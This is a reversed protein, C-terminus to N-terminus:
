MCVLCVTSNFCFSCGLPCATCVSAQGTSFSSSNCKRCVGSLMHYNPLCKLCVSSNLAPCICGSPCGGLNIDYVDYGDIIRFKKHFELLGLFGTPASKDFSLRMVKNAQTSNLQRSDVQVLNLGEFRFIKQEYTQDSSTSNVSSNYYPMSYNNFTNIDPVKDNRAIV